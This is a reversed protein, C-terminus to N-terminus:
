RTLKDHYEEDPFLDLQLQERHLKGSAIAKREEELQKLKFAQKVKRDEIEKDVGSKPKPSEYYMKGDEKLNRKSINMLQKWYKPMKRQLQRIDNQSLLNNIDKHHYHNAKRAKYYRKVIRTITPADLANFGVENSEYVQGTLKEEKTQLEYIRVAAFLAATPFTRIIRKLYDEWDKDTKLNDEIYERTNESIRKKTM